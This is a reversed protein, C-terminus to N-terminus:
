RFAWSGKRHRFDGNIVGRLWTSVTSSKLHGFIVRQEGDVDLISVPLEPLMGTGIGDSPVVNAFDRRLLLRSTAKSLTFFTEQRLLWYCEVNSAAYRSQRGTFERLHQYSRQLEIAITRDGSSFLIDAKWKEGGPTRGPVEERAKIGIEVLAALVAAKAARHWKTEPATACEESLHAFYHWGHVSTKLIASTQCCPMIFDGINFFQKLIEWNEKSISGAYIPCGDRTWASQTM